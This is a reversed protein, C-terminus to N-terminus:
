YDAIEHILARAQDLLEPKRARNALAEARGLWLRAQASEGRIM